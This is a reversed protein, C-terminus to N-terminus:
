AIPFLRSIIRSITCIFLLGTNALRMGSKVPYSFTNANMLHAYLSAFLETGRPNVSNGCTSCVTSNHILFVLVLCLSWLLQPETLTMPLLHSYIYIYGVFVIIMHSLHRIRRMAGANGTVFLNCTMKLQQM